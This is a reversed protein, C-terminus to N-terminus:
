RMGWRVDESGIWPLFRLVAGKSRAEIAAPMARVQSSHGLLVSGATGRDAVLLSPAVCLAGLM